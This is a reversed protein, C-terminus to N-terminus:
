RADYLNEIGPLTEKELLELFAGGGSSVHEFSSKHDFKNIAEITSGGGAYTKINNEKLLNILSKTGMSCQEWEFVGMSGNWIAIEINKLLESISKISKFGIDVIKLSDNYDSVHIINKKSNESFNKSVLLDEPIYFKEKNTHYIEKLKKDLNKTLFNAIMGGGIIIKDVKEILNVLIGSKDEIKAGGIILVSKGSSTSNIKTITSLEKLMLEGAYSDMLFSVGYVSSHKRHSAGFADNIFVDCMSSLARSLLKSNNLEGDFFRINELLFIKDKSSFFESFNLNEKYDIFSIERELKIELYKHVKNNLSLDVERSKPRGLHSCIVIKNVFNYSLLKKITPISMEIRSLDNETINLDCRLFINVTQNRYKNKFDSLTKLKM